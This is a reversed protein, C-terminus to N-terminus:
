KAYRSHTDNVYMNGTLRTRIQNTFCKHTRTHTSKTNEDHRNNYLM